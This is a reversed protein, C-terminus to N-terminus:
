RVGEPVGLTVLDTYAVHIEGTKTDQYRVYGVAYVTKLKNASTAGINITVTYAGDQSVNKCQNTTIGSVTTGLVLKEATGLGDKYTRIIGEGLVKYDGTTSWSIGVRVAQKGTGSNYTREQVTAAVVTGSAEPEADGWVAHVEVDSKVYFSYTEKVSLLKEGAADAYWGQFVKGDQADAKVTVKTSLPCTYTNVDTADTKDAKGSTEQGGYVKLSYVASEKEKYVAVWTATEAAEADSVGAMVDAEGDGDTDWGVFDYGSFDLAAPLTVRGNEANVSAVFKDSFAATTRFTITVTEKVVEEFVAKLNMSKVVDFTYEADTSVIMKADADMWYKFEYGDNATAKVTVTDNLALTTETKEDPVTIVVSGNEATAAVVLYVVKEELRTIASRLAETAEDVTSQSAVKNDAAQNAATLATQLSEWSETTYDESDKAEAESIAAKLSTKDAELVVDLYDLQPGKGSDPATLILTGSGATTVELEFTFTGTILNNNSDKTASLANTKGGTIKNGAESWALKNENSGSRYLATVVYTGTKSANYAYYAKDNQFMGNLFGKNSAWNAPDGTIIGCVADQNTNKYDEINTAHEAELRVATGNAESPFEFPEATTYQGTAYITEGTLVIEECDDCVKDGTYGNELRTVPKVNILHTHEHKCAEEVDKGLIDINSATIYTNNGQVTSTAAIRVYTAEIYDDLVICETESGTGSFAGTKVVKFDDDSPNAETTVYVKYDKMRNSTADVRPTYWIEKVNWKYGFGTQIWIERNATANGDINTNTVTGYNSHWWNSNSGNFAYAAPGDNGANYYSNATANTKLISQDFKSTDIKEITFCDMQPAGANGTTFTLKGEGATKVDFIFTTTHVVGSGADVAGAMHSGNTIKGNEESWSLSNALAGSRYRLSVKYSGSEIANYYLAMSDKSKMANVFKGNSAWTGDMAIMPYAVDGETDDTTNNSLQLFEAELTVAGSTPFQFRDSETYTKEVSTTEAQAVLMNSGLMGLSLAVCIARKMSKKFKGKM